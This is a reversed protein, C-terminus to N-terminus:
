PRSVLARQGDCPSRGQGRIVVSGRRPLVPHSRAARRGVQVREVYTDLMADILTADVEQFGWSVVLVSTTEAVLM